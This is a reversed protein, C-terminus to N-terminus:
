CIIKFQPRKSVLQCMKIVKAYNKIFYFSRVQSDEKENPNNRWYM